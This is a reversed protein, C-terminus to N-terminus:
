SEECSILPVGGVCVFRSTKGSVFVHFRHRAEGCAEDLGEAAIGLLGGFIGSIAIVSIDSLALLIPVSIDEM